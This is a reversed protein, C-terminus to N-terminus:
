WYYLHPKRGVNPTDEDVLQDKPVQVIKKEWMKGAARQPVTMFDHVHWM